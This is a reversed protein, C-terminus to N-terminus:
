MWRLIFKVKDEEKRFHVRHIDDYFWSVINANLWDKIEQPLYNFSFGSARGISSHMPMEIPNMQIQYDYTM